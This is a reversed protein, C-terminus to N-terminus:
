MLLSMRIGKTNYQGAIFWKIVEKGRNDLTVFCYLIRSERTGEVIIRMALQLGVVEVVAGLVFAGSIIYVEGRSIILM